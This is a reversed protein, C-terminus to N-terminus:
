VAGLHLSFLLGTTPAPLPAWRHLQAIYTKCPLIKNMLKHGSKKVIIQQNMFPRMIKRYYILPLQLSDPIEFHRQKFYTHTM